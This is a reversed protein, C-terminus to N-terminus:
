SPSRSARTKFAFYLLTIYLIFYLAIFLIRLTSTPLSGSSAMEGLTCTECRHRSFLLFVMEFGKKWVKMEKKGDPSSICPGSWRPLRVFEVYLLVGVGCGWPLDKCGLLGCRACHHCLCPGTCLCHPAHPEGCCCASLVM